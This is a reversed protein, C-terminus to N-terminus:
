SIGTKDNDDAAGPPAPVDSWGVAVVDVILGAPLRLCTIVIGPM